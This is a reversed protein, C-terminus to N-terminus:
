FKNKKIPEPQKNPPLSKADLTRAKNLDELLRNHKSLNKFKKSEKSFMEIFILQFKRNFQASSLDEEKLKLGRNLVEGLDNSYDDGLELWIEKFGPYSILESFWSIWSEFVEFPMIGEKRFNIAMEFLNLIQCVYNNAILREASGKTPLKKGDEVIPRILEIHDAEFRFLDIAALELNMYIERNAVKRNKINESRQTIFFTVVAVIVTSLNILNDPSLGFIFLFM